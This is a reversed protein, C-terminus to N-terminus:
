SSAVPLTIDPPRVYAPELADLDDPGRRALAAMGLHALVGPDPRDTEMASVIRAAELPLRRAVEGVFAIERRPIRAPLAAVESAALHGPGGLLLGSSAYAAWFVEGKRADLLSVVAEDPGAPPSRRSFYAHAMIELSGIGVIPLGLALAIGKATAVGVRVGTFSGPGLCCALLELDRKRWGAKRLVDDILGLLREGHLGPEPPSPRGSDLPTRAVCSDGDCLAVGATDTSTDIALARM